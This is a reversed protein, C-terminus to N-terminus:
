WASTASLVSEVSSAAAWVRAEGRTLRQQWAWKADCQGGQGRGAGEGSGGWPVERLAIVVGKGSLRLQDGSM